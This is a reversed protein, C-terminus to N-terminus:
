DNRNKNFITLWICSPTSSTYAVRHSIGAPIKFFDGKTLKLQENNIFEIIAEGQILYIFEEEPQLYWKDFGRESGPSFITEIKLNENNELVHIAEKSNEDQSLNTIKFINIPKFNM